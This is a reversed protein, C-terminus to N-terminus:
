AKFRGSREEPGDRLAVEVEADGGSDDGQDIGETVKSAKHGGISETPEFGVCTRNLTSEITQGDSGDEGSDEDEPGFVSAVSWSGLVDRHRGREDGFQLDDGDGTM